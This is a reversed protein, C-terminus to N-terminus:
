IMIMASCSDSECYARTKDDNYSFWKGGCSPCRMLPDAKRLGLKEQCELCMVKRILLGPEEIYVSSLSVKGCIRCYERTDTRAM